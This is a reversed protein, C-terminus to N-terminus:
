WLELLRVIKANESNSYKDNKIWERLKEFYIKDGLEVYYLILSNSESIGISIFKEANPGKPEESLGYRNETIFKKIYKYLRPSAAEGYIHLTIRQMESFRDDVTSSDIEIETIQCRGHRGLYSIRIVDKEEQCFCYSRVLLFALLLIIIKKM